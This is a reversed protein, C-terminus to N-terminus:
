FDKFLEHSFVLSGSKEGAAWSGSRWASIEFSTADEDNLIEDEPHYGDRFSASRRVEPGIPPRQKRMKVQRWDVTSFFPHDRIDGEDLCGLRKNPSFVLLSTILHEANRSFYKSRHSPWQIRGQLIREYTKPATHEQFPSCGSLMEFLLIGFSWWDVASTYDRHLLIEPCIYSPTGCFTRTTGDVVKAFGFDGLRVHGEADLLVNEPKLDRYIINESHLYSLAMAVETAYFRGVPEEFYGYRKIQSFLDGGPMYDIIMYIHASDQFSAELGVLFPNHIKDMLVRENQVHRVQQMQVVRDKRMSKLAFLRGDVNRKVLYVKAFAGQGLPRQLVFDKLEHKFPGRQHVSIAREIVRGSSPRQSQTQAEVAEDISKDPQQRQQRSSALRILEGDESTEAVKEAKIAKEVKEAIRSKLPARASKPSAPPAAKQRLEKMERSEFKPNSTRRSPPTEIAPPSPLGDFDSEPLIPSSLAAVSDASDEEEETNYAEKKSVLSRIGKLKPASPRTSRRGNKVSPAPSSPTVPKRELSSYSTQPNASPLSNASRSTDPLTSSSLNMDELDQVRIDQVRSSVPPCVRAQNLLDNNFEFPRSPLSFEHSELKAPHKGYAFSSTSSSPMSTLSRGFLESALKSGSPIHKSFPNKMGMGAKPKGMRALLDAASGETFSGGAREDKRGLSSSGGGTMAAGGVGNGRGFIFANGVGSQPRNVSTLRPLNKSSHDESFEAPRLSPMTNIM